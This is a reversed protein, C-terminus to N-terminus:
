ALKLQPKESPQKKQPTMGFLFIGGPRVVWGALNDVMRQGSGTKLYLFLPLTLLLIIFLMQLFWLHGSFSYPLLKVPDLYNKNTLSLVRGPLELYYGPLWQWFTETTKGHSFDEIYNQPVVLIFMGVTYLPILIRKVRELLYQGATRSKLSYSAAFGATLFFLPMLWLALLFERFIGMIESQQAVAAKLQWDDTDFFRTCHLVFVGLMAIVRLWDIDYRRASM